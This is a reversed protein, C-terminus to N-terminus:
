VESAGGQWGDVQRCVGIANSYTRKIAPSWALLSPLGEQKTSAPILGAGNPTALLPESGMELQTPNEAAKPGM